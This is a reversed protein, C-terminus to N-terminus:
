AFNFEKIDKTEEADLPIEKVPLNFLEALSRSFQRIFDPIQLHPYSESLVNWAISGQHLLFGLSRKQGAGAVKRGDLMLDFSVPSDFCHANQEPQKSVCSASTEYDQDFLQTEIGLHNLSRRLEDHILFYSERVKRFAKHCIVPAVLSYTLDPGHHVIGGGTIRRIAPVNGNLDSRITRWVGYGVTVTPESFQYFRLVPNQDNGRIQRRFLFEDVAMNFAGDHTEDRIVRLHFMTVRHQGDALM